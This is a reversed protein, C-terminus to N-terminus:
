PMEPTIPLRITFQTGQNPQSQVGLTGQHKSTVIQHAITLGLGTGKGVGKTTFLHDFIKARVEPSIGKGNDKIEIQVQNLNVMATTIKIEQPHAELEAFSLSQAMEDFMDIANALINMFVQNLQGPFCKVTPLNGYNKIVEIARRHKDGKLRYKLIMLTSDLGDHLNAKVQHETDSRSFTRLSTSISKIRDTAGKMSELVKPLDECLFELDIEEAHDQIPIAAQPHHQQYLELHNLLDRVHDKTHNISGSLFGVPNNIEHAVGAVLNGLSAMKEHQVLQLQIEQLDELTEELQQAQQRTELLLETQKLAIGMQAAIQEAFQVEAAQWQRPGDCQHICLLGWLEDEQLIPVVLVARIGFQRLIQRHCDPVESSEIDELTCIRGSKYLPAYDEAFCHDQVRIGLASPFGPKIDEAIFEGFEYNYRAEFGYIGVRDAQLISRTCRTVTEFIAELELSKRMQIVVDFLIKQRDLSRALKEANSQTEQYLRANELSIAAQTCLFNLIRIRDSTFAQATSQNRLYLLGLLKGQNLIPLCLVSKPKRELLYDDLVPLDTKLNDIVVVAQINKVYQILKLPLEPNDDLPITCLQTEEPTSIARVQWEGQPNPLILACRDGGSNQLIIQTLQHLLEDLQITSSLSQSAKLTAAFDLTSNIDRNADRDATTTGHISVNPAAITALADLPNLPGSGRQLIPNLLQAYRTELDETKAKAGWRAYCYYAEQMYGAAVRTKQWSLYFKAARENALAEDQLYGNAKASEIALDYFEIAEIRQNLVRHYEAAILQWRHQHNFPAHNAWNQLKEQCATAQVLTEQQQEPALDAYRDLAILAEYFTILPVMFYGVLADQYQIALAIQQAAQEQQEFLYGLFAQNLHIYALGGRDHIAQFQPLAEDVNFVDGQLCYPVESQGLLNLVGQYYSDLSRLTADQKVQSIVLRYQGMAEALEKLDAGAWYQYHHDILISLAVVEWNGTELASQYTELLGLISNRLPEKWHRIFSNTIFCARAKLAHIQFREVLALALKGFEYGMELNGVVGCLILGYDAYSFVSIPCNGHQISLEVQKFVLLPLLPPVALYASPVLKTLIQMAALLKPDQLFPLDALSLPSRDQWLQYTQFGAAEIDVMTPEPPFEVGLLRLVQLGTEVVERFRGQSRFATMHIEYVPITDLLSTASRLVVEGWAELKDFDTNLCAAELRDHHLSLTLAYHNEWADQPLLEIAQNFYNLAADYAIASKAKRGALLNLQALEEQERDALMLEVGANLHNVIEFLNAERESEPTNRYLLRGIELHISSKEAEPILQYAAQQVRDHLFRYTVAIGESQGMAPTELGSSFFKYVEGQPIVLGEQLSRWLSDAAESELQQAVIALTKLDFQNGICAALKLATQTSDPLRQLRQVMLEVVDDTLAAARVQTIECQWTGTTAEFTILGDQYLAKLFQTAFFPNGQTKQYILDTLPQALAPTCTLTDAVLQNLSAHSLPNLAIRQVIAGAKKVEDLTLMLPHAPFVENDRYAGILLLYGTQAEAMLLQMLKLSASDAWQLDDLFMVLPHDATTFVQIFKQLLLNFRNQAETGSLESAPPQSGTIRELEPIVEIIVQANEGLAALIKAKWTRLQRDSESLLQGVLDRFTQVVASFPINRNFQDFKGKIFYGRQRVIPKHVENIVATKGIGSFGAVLMWEAAGAAVRNFAALLTQVEADRGYIKEPILFRDCQDRLALTFPEIHGTEQLQDLCIQLDHQLGLTGQYRDEANKAMLKCVIASLIEPIEPSLNHAKPPHKALHCHVLEMPDDSQFPLQGTLLEFLTVGFAYFDARYDIGRNMRGTQEPALYALTGELGNPNKIEPTEKPLLSAVSFDILKIKQSQPHILINSPKIDKHIVRAQHLDQLIAVLQLAIDLIEWLSLPHDQAYKQLSVGGFDEMIFAYRHGQSELRYPRIIGPIKLNKAITYQNRFQLLDHLRPYDQHLLKIIVPHQNVEELARYVITRNSEHLQEVISYGSIQPLTSTPPTATRLMPDTFTRNLM